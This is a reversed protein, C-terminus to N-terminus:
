PVVCHTLLVGDCDDVTGVKPDGEYGIWMQQLHRATVLAAGFKPRVEIRESSVIYVFGKPDGILVTSLQKGKMFDALVVQSM